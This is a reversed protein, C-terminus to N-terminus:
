DLVEKLSKELFLLSMIELEEESRHTNHKRNHKQQELYKKMKYRLYDPNSYDKKPRPKKCSKRSRSHKQAPFSKEMQTPFYPSEVSFDEGEVKGNRNSHYSKEEIEESQRTCFQEHQNILSPTCGLQSYSNHDIPVSITRKERHEKKMSGIKIDSDSMAKQLEIQDKDEESRDYSTIKPTYKFKESNEQIEKCKNEVQLNNEKLMNIERSDRRNYEISYLNSILPSKFSVNLGWGKNKDGNRRRCVIFKKFSRYVRSICGCNAWNRNSIKFTDMWSPNAKLKQRVQNLNSIGLKRKSIFVPEWRPNSKEKDIKQNFNNFKLASLRKTFGKDPLNKDKGVEQQKKDLIKKGM